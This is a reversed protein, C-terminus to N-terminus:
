IRPFAFTQASLHCFDFEHMAYSPFLQYGKTDEASIIKNCKWMIRPVEHCLPTSDIVTIKRLDCLIANFNVHHVIINACWVSCSYPWSIFVIKSYFSRLLALRKLNKYIAHFPSRSWLVLYVDKGAQDESNSINKSQDIRQLINFTPMRSLWEFQERCM